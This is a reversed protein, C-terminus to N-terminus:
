CEFSVDGSEESDNWLMYDGGVVNSMLVEYFWECNCKTLDAAMGNHDVSVLYFM